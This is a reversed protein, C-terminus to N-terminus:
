SKVSKDSCTLEITEDSTEYTRLISYRKGNHELLREGEYEFTHVEFVTDASMGSQNAAYFEASRVSLENALTERKVEKPKTPFGADDVDQVVSILNVVEDWTRKKM